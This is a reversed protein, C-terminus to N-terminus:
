ASGKEQQNLEKMKLVIMYEYLSLLLCYHFGPIGDLFGLKIIYM